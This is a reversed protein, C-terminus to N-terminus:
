SIPQALGLDPVDSGLPLLVTLVAHQGVTELQCAGGFADLRRRMGHLGLGHWVKSRSRGTAAAPANRVTILLIKGHQHVRLHPPTDGEGHHLANSLGEQIVRFLCVSRPADLREPLTGIDLEVDQGSLSRHRTVALDIVSSTTLNEVEPLILGASLIRLQSLVDRALAAFSTGDPLVGRAGSESMLSMLGLLQVPGDHLEAGVHNLVQENSQAADLRAQVAERRLQENQAMLRRKVLLRAELQESQRVSLALMGLMGMTALATVLWVTREVFARDQLIQNAPQYIEGVAVFQGSQPDHIPVYIEFYPYPLPNEGANPGSTELRTITEGALAITLDGPDHMDPTDGQISSFLLDGQPAWIRLAVDAAAGSNNQIVEAIATRVAESVPDDNRQVLAYPALLKDVYVAGIEGLSHLQLARYRNIIFLGLGIMMLLVALTMFVALRRPPLNSGPFRGRSSEDDTPVSPVAPLTIM